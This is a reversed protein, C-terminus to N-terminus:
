IMQVGEHALKDQIDDSITRIASNPSLHNVMIKSAAKTSDPPNWSPDSRRGVVSNPMLEPDLIFSAQLSRLSLQWARM